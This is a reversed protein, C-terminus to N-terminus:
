CLFLLILKFILILSYWDIIRKVRKYLASSHGRVAYNLFLSSVAWWLHCLFMIPTEQLSLNLISSILPLVPCCVMSLMRVSRLSRQSPCTSHISWWCGGCYLLCQVPFNRTVLCVLSVLFLNSIHLWSPNPSSTVQRPPPETLLEWCVLIADAHPVICGGTDPIFRPSPWPM